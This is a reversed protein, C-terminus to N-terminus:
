LEVQNPLYTSIWNKVMVGEKVSFLAPLSTWLNKKWFVCNNVKHIEISFFFRYQVIINPKQLDPWKDVKRLQTIADIPVGLISKQDTSNWKYLWLCLSKVYQM